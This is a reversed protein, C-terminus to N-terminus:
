KDEKTNEFMTEVYCDVCYLPRDNHPKYPVAFYRGCRVCRVTHIVKPQEYLTEIVHGARVYKQNNM